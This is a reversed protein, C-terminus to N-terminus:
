ALVQDVRESRDLGGRASMAGANDPLTATTEGDLVLPSRYLDHYAGMQADDDAGGIIEWASDPTLKGYGEGGYRLSRYRPQLRQRERWVPGAHHTLDPQCHERQPTMSGPALYCHRVAGMDRRCALLAGLFVANEALTLAEVQTVGIVTSRIISACVNAAGHAQDAIALGAAHGGDVISDSVHLAGGKGHLQLAGVVCHDICLAVCSADVEISPHARWPTERM